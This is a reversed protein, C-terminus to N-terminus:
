SDFGFDGQGNGQGNNGNGNGNNGNGNGNNGNGVNPSLLGIFLQIQQGPMVVTNPPPIMAVVAGVQPNTEDRFDGVGSGM